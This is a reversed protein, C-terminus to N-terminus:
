AFLRLVRETGQIVKFIKTKEFDIFIVCFSLIYTGRLRNSRKPKHGNTAYIEYERPASTQFSSPLYAMSADCHGPFYKNLATCTLSIKEYVGLIRRCHNLFITFLALFDFFFSRWLGPAHHM